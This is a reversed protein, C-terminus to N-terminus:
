QNQIAARVTIQRGRLIFNKQELIAKQQDRQNYFEIFGIRSNQGATNTPLEAIKPDFKDFVAMLENETVDAPLNSLEIRIRSFLATAQQNVPPINPYQKDAIVPARRRQPQTQLQNNNSEPQNIKMGSQIQRVDICSQNIVSGDLDEVAKRVGAEDKMKVYGIKKDGDTLITVDVVQGAKAFLQRLQEQTTSTDLETVQLLNPQSSSSSQISSSSSSSSISSSSSSSQIQPQSRLPLEPKYRQPDIQQQLVYFNQPFKDVSRPVSGGRQNSQPRQEAQSINIRRGDLKQGNLQRYANQATYADAMTVFGFGRSGQENYIIRADQVEGAQEFFEQLSEKTTSYNLGNVYLQSKPDRVVSSSRRVSNARDDQYRVTIINGNIDQGNLLQVANQADSKHQMSIFAFNYTGQSNNVLKIDSVTGIQDFLQKLNSQTTSSDLGGVFLHRSQKLQKQSNPNNQSINRGLSQPRIQQTSNTQQRQAIQPPFLNNSIARNNSLANSNSIARGPTQARQDAKKVNIRRGDLMQGDLYNIAHNATNVDKMTVFGFGRSGQENYIIRADYVQGAQEFFQQLSEKTTSYNLGSVYLESKPDRIVSPPRGNSPAREKSFEIYIIRGDLLSQNLTNYAFQATQNDKFEVFGFGKSKGQEDRPISVRIVQGIGQFHRSLSQENTQFNINRIFLTCNQKSNFRNQM